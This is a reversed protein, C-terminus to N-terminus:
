QEIVKVGSPVQFTFVGGPLAVNTRLRSLTLIRNQIKEDIEFRRPLSSEQDFWVTARRFRMTPDLPELLLVDTKAGDLMEERLWSARYKEQPRELFWGLLNYGYVANEPLSFRLVQGPIEEPEYVWVHRGDIVIAGGAPDTFRMAFRNAGSQYLTGRSEPQDVYPDEFKQRFEARFTSITQYTRAARTLIADASPRQAAAPGPLALGLGLALVAGRM